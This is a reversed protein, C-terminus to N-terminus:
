KNKERIAAVLETKNMTSFGKIGLERARGKLLVVPRKDLDSRRLSDSVGGHQVKKPM